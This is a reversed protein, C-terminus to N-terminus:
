HESPLYLTWHVGDYAAWIDIKELSFDTYEIRKTYFPEVDSDARATLEGSKDSVTLTWFHMEGIRPDETCARTFSAAAIASAIEDILWYAGGREAVFQVGPTYIVKRAFPHRFRELDGTFQRLDDHTLPPKKHM